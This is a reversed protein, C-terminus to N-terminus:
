DADDPVHNEILEAIDGLLEIDRRIKGGTLIASGHRLTLPTVPTLTLSSTFTFTPSITDKLRSRISADALLAGVFARPGGKVRVWRDFAPDGSRIGKEGWPRAPTVNLRLKPHPPLVYTVASIGRNREAAWYDGLSYSVAVEHGRDSGHVIHPRLARSYDYHGPEFVFDSSRAFDRLALESLIMILLGAGGAAIPVGVIVALESLLEVM